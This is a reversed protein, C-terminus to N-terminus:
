HVKDESWPCQKLLEMCKVLSAAKRTAIEVLKTEYDTIIEPTLSADAMMSRTQQTIYLKALTAYLGIANGCETMFVERTVKRDYLDALVQLAANQHYPLTQTNVEQSLMFICANEDIQPDGPM